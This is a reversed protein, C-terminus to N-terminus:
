CREKLECVLRQEKGMGDRYVLTAKVCEGEPLFHEQAASFSSRGLGPQGLFLKGDGEGGVPLKDVLWRQFRFPADGYVWIIPADAPKPAIQPEDIAM